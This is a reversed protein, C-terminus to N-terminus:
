VQIYQPLQMDLTRVTDGDFWGVGPSVVPHQTAPSIPSTALGPVTDGEV